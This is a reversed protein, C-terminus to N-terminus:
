WECCREREGRFERLRNRTGQGVGDPLADMAFFGWEAIEANSRPQHEFERIVFLAVHDSRYGISNSYLGFLQAPETPVVGVEEMLERNLSDLVAERRKVGGGPFYWGPVYTHRVLLIRDEDDVVLGRVGLSLPRRVFRYAIRAPEITRYGLNVLIHGLPQRSM